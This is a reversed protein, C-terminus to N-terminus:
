FRYALVSACQKARVKICNSAYDPWVVIAQGSWNVALAPTGMGTPGPATFQSSSWAGGEYKSVYYECREPTSRNCGLWAIALIGGPSTASGLLLASDHGSIPAAASWSGTAVDWQRWVVRSPGADAADSEAWVAVPGADSGGVAPLGTASTGPKNMVHGNVLVDCGRPADAKNNVWGVAVQGRGYHNVALTRGYPLCQTVYNDPRFWGPIETVEGHAGTLLDIRTWQVSEKYVPGPKSGVFAWLAAPTVGVADEISTWSAHTYGDPLPRHFARATANGGLPIEGNAVNPGVAFAGGWVASVLEATHDLTTSVRASVSPAAPMSLDVLASTWNATERLAAAFRKGGLALPRLDSYLEGPVLSRSRVVLSGPDNVAVQWGPQKGIEHWFVTAEGSDDLFVLPTGVCIKTLNCNSDLETVTIRAQEYAPAPGAPEGGGGCGAVLVATVTSIAVSLATRRHQQTGAGM